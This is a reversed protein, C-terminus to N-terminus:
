LTDRGKNNELHSEIAEYFEKKFLTSMHTGNEIQILKANPLVKALEEANKFIPDNTGGIILIPLTCQKLSDESVELEMSSDLLDAICELDNIKRYYENAIWIVIRDIGKKKMGVLELLPTFDKNKRLATTIKNLKELNEPTSKEWGAGGIVISNAREPYTTAFKLSIFGGLSYGIIHAKEIKLENMLDAIDKVLKIGYNEKGYPKASYGHGRLDISIVRYHKSLKQSIHPLKWNLDSNVLVGHILIVPEGKGKEIYYIPVETTTSLKGTKPRLFISCGNLVILSLIVLTINLLFFIQKRSVKHHTWM